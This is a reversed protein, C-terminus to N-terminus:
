ERNFPADFPVMYRIGYIDHYDLSIVSADKWYIPNGQFDEIEHYETDMGPLPFVELVYPEREEEFYYDEISGEVIRISLGLKSIIKGPNEIKDGQLDKYAWSIYDIVKDESDDPCDKLHVTPVAYAMNPDVEPLEFNFDLEGSGDCFVNYKGAPPYEPEGEDRGVTDFILWEGSDVDEWLSITGVNKPYTIKIDEWPDIAPSAHFDLAHREAGKFGNNLLVEMKNGEAEDKFSEAQAFYELGFYIGQGELFLEILDNSTAAVAFFASSNQLINRDSEEFTIVDDALVTEGDFILEGLDLEEGFYSLPISNFDDGLSLYGFLEYVEEGENVFFATVVPMDDDVDIIVSFEGDQEDIEGQVFGDHFNPNFLLIYDPIENNDQIQMGEGEVQPTFRGKIRMQDPGIVEEEQHSYFRIQGWNYAAGWPLTGESDEGIEKGFVAKIFRISYDGQIIAEPYKDEGIFPEERDSADNYFYAPDDLIIEKIEEEKRDFIVYGLFLPAQPAEGHNIIEFRIYDFDYELEIGEPLSAGRTLLLDVIADGDMEEEGIKTLDIEANFNEDELLKEIFGKWTLNEIRFFDSQDDVRIEDFLYLEYGFSSKYEAKEADFFIFIGREDGRTKRFIDRFDGEITELNERGVVKYEEWSGYLKNFEDVYFPDYPYDRLFLILNFQQLFCLDRIYWNDFYIWHNFEDSYYQPVFLGLLKEEESKAEVETFGIKETRDGADERLDVILEDVTEGRTTKVIVRLSSEEISSFLNDVQIKGDRFEVVEPDVKEGASFHLSGEDLGEITFDINSKRVKDFPGVIQNNIEGAIVQVDDPNIVVSEGANDRECGPVLVMIFALFIVGIMKSGETRM